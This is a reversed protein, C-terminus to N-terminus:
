ASDCRERSIQVWDRMVSNFQSWDCTVYFGNVVRTLCITWRPMRVLQQMKNHTLKKNVFKRLKCLLQSFILFQGYTSANLSKSIGSVSYSHLQTMWSFSSTYVFDPCLEYWEVLWSIYLSPLDQRSWPILAHPQGFLSRCKNTTM